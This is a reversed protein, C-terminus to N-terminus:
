PLFRRWGKKSRKERRRRSRTAVGTSEDSPREFVSSSALPLDGDSALAVLYLPGAVGRSVAIAGDDQVYN